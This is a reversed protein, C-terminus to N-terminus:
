SCEEERAHEMKKQRILFNRVRQFRSNWFPRDGASQHLVLTTGKRGAQVWEKQRWVFYFNKKLKKVDFFFYGNRRCFDSEPSVGSHRSCVCGQLLLFLSIKKRKRVEFFILFTAERPLSDSEPFVESPRSSVCERTLVFSFFIRRKGSKAIKEKRQMKPSLIVGSGSSPVPAFKSPIMRGSPAHWIRLFCFFSFLQNVQAIDM